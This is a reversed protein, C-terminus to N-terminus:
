LGFDAQKGVRFRIDGYFSTQYTLNSDLLLLQFRGHDVHGELYSNSNHSVVVRASDMYYYGSLFSKGYSFGGNADFTGTGGIRDWRVSLSSYASDCPLSSISVSDMCELDFSHVDTSKGFEDRTERFGPSDFRLTDGNEVVLYFYSNGDFTDSSDCSALTIVIFILLLWIRKM